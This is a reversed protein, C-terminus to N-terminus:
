GLKETRKTTSLAASPATGPDLARELPMGFSARENEGTGCLTTGLLHM